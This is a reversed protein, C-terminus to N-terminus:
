RACQYIGEPQLCTFTINMYFGPLYAVYPIINQFIYGVDFHFQRGFEYQLQVECPPLFLPLTLFPLCSNSSKRVCLPPMQYVQDSGVSFAASLCEPHIQTVRSLLFMIIM